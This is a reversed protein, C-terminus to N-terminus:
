MVAVMRLYVEKGDITKILYNGKSLKINLAKNLGTSSNSYVEHYCEKGKADVVFVEITESKPNSMRIFVTGDKSPNPYVSLEKLQEEISNIYNGVTVTTDWVCGNSDTVTVTYSAAILNNISATTSNQPDSWQYIYPPIGGQMNLTISGNSLSNTDDKVIINGSLAPPAVLFFTDITTQQSTADYLSVM